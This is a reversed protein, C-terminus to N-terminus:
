SSIVDVKILESIVFDAIFIGRKSLILCDDKEFLIGDYLFKDSTKLFYSLIEMGFKENIFKKNSGWKTRLSTLIYDNYSTQLDLYEKEFFIGNNNLLSDSYKTNNSINWRRENEKFSHASPGIGIYPKGTWYSLNHKSYYGEKAFNSIEYHDYGNEEAFHILMEFQRLSKQETVPILKGKKLFNSFVTKPEFTLHYASLHELELSKFKKLNNLWTTLTMGPVGYILDININNFGSKRSREISEVAEKATHRRNMLKLDKDDFSQVGISLRNVPSYEKLESLYKITLDDPNSEFTVEPNPSVQFNSNITDFISSVEEISLVSPTGGGFYITDFVFDKYEDKRQQIELILAEVLKNKDKLSVSFHFDCYYCLKRCYPIHIYFGAV